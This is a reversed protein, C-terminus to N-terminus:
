DGRRVVLYQSWETWSWFAAQRPFGDVADRFHALMEDELWPLRVTGRTEIVFGRSVLAAIMADCDPLENHTCDDDFRSIVLPVGIEELKARSPLDLSAPSPWELYIRGGPKLKRQAWVAFSTPDAIHEIFHACVIADFMRGGFEPPAENWDSIEYGQFQDFLEGKEISYAYLALDRREPSPWNLFVSLSGDGAGIDAVQAERPLTKLFCTRPHFTFYLEMVRGQDLQSKRPQDFWRKIQEADM